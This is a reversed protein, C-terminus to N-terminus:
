LHGSCWGVSLDAKKQGIAQRRTREATSDLRGNRVSFHFRLTRGPHHTTEPRSGAARIKGQSVLLKKRAHTNERPTTFTAQRNCISM